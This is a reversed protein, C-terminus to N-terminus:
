NLIPMLPIIPSFRDMRMIKINYINEYEFMKIENSGIVRAYIVKKGTNNSTLFYPEVTFEDLGYLFKVRNRHLIASSFILSKM